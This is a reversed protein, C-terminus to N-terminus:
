QIRCGIRSANSSSYILLAKARVKEFGIVGFFRSDYSNDLNDGIVFVSNAPVKVPEFPPGWAALHLYANDRGCPPPLVLPTGNILITNAPGREVTDGPIGAVRKVYLRAGDAKPPEFMIVDGRRPPHANFADVGTLFAEGECITPCMSAGISRFARFQFCKAWLFFQAVFFLLVGAVALGAFLLLRLLVNATRTKEPKPPNTISGFLTETM